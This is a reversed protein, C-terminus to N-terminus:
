TRAACNQRCPLDVASSEVQLTTHEIGFRHQLSESAAHLFADGPPGAPM